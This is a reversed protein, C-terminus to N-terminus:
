IYDTITDYRYFLIFIFFYKIIVSMRSHFKSLQIFQMM